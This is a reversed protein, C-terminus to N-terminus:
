FSPDGTASVGAADAIAWGLAYQFEAYATPMGEDERAYWPLDNPADFLYPNGDVADIVGDRFNAPILNWGEGIADSLGAGDWQWSTKADYTLVAAALPCACRLSDNTTQHRQVRVGYDRVSAIARTIDEPTYIHM